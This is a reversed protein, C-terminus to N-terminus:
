FEDYSDELHSTALVLSRRPAEKIFLEMDLRAADINPLSFKVSFRPGILYSKARLLSTRSYSLQSSRRTAMAFTSPEFGKEREM